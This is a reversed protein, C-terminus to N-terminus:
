FIENPIRDPQVEPARWDEPLDSCKVLNGNQEQQSYFGTLFTMTKAMIHEYSQYMQRTEIM